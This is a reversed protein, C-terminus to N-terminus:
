RPIKGLAEQAARCLIASDYDFPHSSDFQGRYKLPEKAELAQALAQKLPEVARVDGIQGLAEAAAARYVYDGRGLVRILPEVAQVDGIRGLAKAAETCYYKNELAAILPKVARTDGIKGLARLIHSHPADPDELAAILPEVARADGIEGLEIAARKRMDANKHQLSMILTEVKDPQWGLKDLAGAAAERVNKDAGILVAVLPEVARADGIRGLAKAVAQRTGENSYKLAAVLPEVAPAGIKVLAEAVVDRVYWGSNLAAVLPGVAPEGIEVCKNWEGRIIWYIAGARDTGPRWGIRVLAEVAASQVNSDRDELAVVFPEMARADGIQELAKIAAWRVCWNRDELEAILSEVARPDSIKGLLEIAAILSNARTSSIVGPLEFAAGQVDSHLTELTAVLPEVALAGVQVLAEAAAERRSQWAEVIALGSPGIQELEAAEESTYSFTLAAFLPQVAQTDGIQGLTKAADKGGHLDGNLATILPEIAPTGIEVCKNWQRKVIWYSAAAESKDPQWGLRDMAEAAAQRVQFDENKLAIILSGLAPGGIKGLAEAIAVRVDKNADELAVTLPEVTEPNGMEGLAQAAARRVWENEDNLASILPQIGQPDGIKGLAEAAASRVSFYEDRLIPREKAPSPRLPLSPIDIVPLSPSRISLSPHGLAAILPEVARADGIVGLARAVNERVVFSEDRLAAILQEVARSDGLEGLASAANWRVSSDKLYSLAKILGQVDRKAKMKDINPPGFLSM